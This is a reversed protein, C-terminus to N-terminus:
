ALHAFRRYQAATKCARLLASPLLAFSRLVADRIRDGGPEQNKGKAYNMKRLPDFSVGPM